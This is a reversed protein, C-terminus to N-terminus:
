LERLDKENAPIQRTPGMVISYGSYNIIGYYNFIPTIYYGVNDKIDFIEKEYLSMPDKPLSVPSHYFVMERNEFLRIPIGSLNGIVTCIYRLDINEM